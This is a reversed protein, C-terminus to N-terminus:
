TSFNRRVRLSNCGSCFKLDSQRMELSFAGNAIRVTARVNFGFASILVDYPPLNQEARQQMATFSTHFGWVRDCKFRAVDIPKLPVLSAAAAAAAASASHIAGAARTMAVRRREAERLRLDCESFEAVCLQLYRQFDGLTMGATCSVFLSSSFFSLFLFFCHFIPGSFDCM